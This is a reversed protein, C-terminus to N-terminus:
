FDRSTRFLADFECLLQVLRDAGPEGDFERIAPVAVMSDAPFEENDEIIQKVRPVFVFQLWQSFAMTDMAFAEHFNYAEPPLPEAAWYGNAKMEAEIESIARAVQSRLSASGAPQNM